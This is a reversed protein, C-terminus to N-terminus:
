IKFERGKNNGSQESSKKATKVTWQLSIHYSVPFFELLIIMESSNLALKSSGVSQRIMCRTSGLRSCSRAKCRVSLSVWSASLLSCTHTRFIRRTELMKVVQFCKWSNQLDKFRSSTAAICTWACPITQTLFSSNRFLLLTRVAHSILYHMVNDDNITLGPMVLTNQAKSM